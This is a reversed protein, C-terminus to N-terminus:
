EDKKSTGQKILQNAFVAVAACIIGQIISTVILSVVSPAGYDPLGTFLIGAALIIGCPMLLFPIYKNPVSESNKIFVGIVYLVIPVIALKPDVFSSVLTPDLDM